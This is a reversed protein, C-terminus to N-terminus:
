FASRAGGVAGLSIRFAEHSQEYSVTAPPDPINSLTVAVPQDLSFKGQCIPELLTAGSGWASGSLRSSRSHGACLDDVIWSSGDDKSKQMISSKHLQPRRPSVYGTCSFQEIEDEKLKFRYPSPGPPPVAAVFKSQSGSSVGGEPPKIAGVSKSKAQKPQTYVGTARKVAAKAGALTSGIMANVLEDSLTIFTSENDQLGPPTALALMQCPMYGTFSTDHIIARPYACPSAGDCDQDCASHEACPAACVAPEKDRAARSLRALTDFQTFKSSEKKYDEFTGSYVIPSAVQLDGTKIADRHDESNACGKLEHILTGDEDESCHEECDEDEDETEDEEESEEEDLEGECACADPSQGM